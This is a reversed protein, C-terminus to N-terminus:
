RVSSTISNGSTDTAVTTVSQSFGAQSCSFTDRSLLIESIGCNDSFTALDEAVLTGIGSENLQVTFPSAMLVVPQTQDRVTVLSICQASSDGVVAEALLTVGVPSSM